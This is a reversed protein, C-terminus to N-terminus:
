GTRVLEIASLPILRYHSVERERRPVGPEHVALDLHDRAVRDITGHVTGGAVLAIELACRRRALDRLVYGLGLRASLGEAGGAEGASLAVQARSLVLGQVASFPVIGHGRAGADGIVRGSVWDRGVTVPLLDVPRGSHLLIRVSLLDEGPSSLALLRDRLSLRALRLREEEVRLEAEDARLEGELQSELDDFLNDWRM